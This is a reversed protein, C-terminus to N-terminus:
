RTEQRPRYVAACASDTSEESGEQGRGSQQVVRTVREGDAKPDDGRGLTKPM